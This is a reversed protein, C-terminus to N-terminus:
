LSKNAGARGRRGPAVVSEHWGHEVPLCRVCFHVNKLLLSNIPCMHGYVDISCTDLFMRCCPKSMDADDGKPFVTNKLFSTAFCVCDLEVLGM